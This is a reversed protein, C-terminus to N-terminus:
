KKPAGALIWTIVLKLDPDSIAANPPMPTAGWVGSGGNKVKKTLKAMADADGKYKEAIDRYAPGVVKHDVAHCSLCMNKSAIAQAKAADVEALAHTASFTILGMFVLRKM